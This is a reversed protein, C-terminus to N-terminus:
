PQCFSTAYGILCRTGPSSFQDERRWCGNMTQLEKDQPPPSPLNGRAWGKVRIKKQGKKNLTQQGKLSSTPTQTGWQRKSEKKHANKIETTGEMHQWIFSRQRFTFAVSIQLYLSLHKPYNSSLNFMTTTSKERSEIINVAM